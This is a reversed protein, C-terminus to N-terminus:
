KLQINAEQMTIKRILEDERENKKRLSEEQVRVKGEMRHLEKELVKLQEM